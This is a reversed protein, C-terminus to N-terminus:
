LDQLEVNGRDDLSTGIRVPQKRGDSLVIHGTVEFVMAPQGSAIDNRVHRVQVNKLRPEYQQLSFKVARQVSAVAETMDHMKDSIDPVGYDPVTPAEGRRTNLLVRLHEIVADGVDAARASTEAKGIRSLLGRGAM